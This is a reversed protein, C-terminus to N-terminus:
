QMFHYGWGVKIPTSEITQDLVSDGDDDRTRRIVAGNEDFYSVELKDTAGDNDNDRKTVTARVGFRVAPRELYQYAVVSDIAGDADDDRELRTPRGMEDYSFTEVYVPIGDDDHDRTYRLLRGNGDYHSREVSDVVGDGNGDSRVEVNNGDDDYRYRTVSDFSGDADRDNEFGLTQYDDTFLRVTIHDIVGDADSDNRQTWKRAVDDYSWYVVSDLVGDGDRDSQDTVVRGLEDRELEVVGDTRGDGDWDHESRTRNGDRDFTSATSSEIAGDAGSDQTVLKVEAWDTVEFLTEHDAESIDANFSRTMFGDADFEMVNRRDITGDNGHDIKREAAAYYGAEIGLEEYLRNLAPAPGRPARHDALLSESNARNLTERFTRDHRLHYPPQALNLEDFELPWTAGGTIEIGNSPDGDYDFTEFLVLVNAVHHFASGADDAGRRGNTIPEIGALDFPSVLSAGEVEGLVTAGLSFRVVQGPEYYFGGDAHTFGSGGVTEYYVGSVAGTLYGVEIGRPGGGHPNSGSAADGCAAALCSLGLAVFRFKFSDRISRVSM